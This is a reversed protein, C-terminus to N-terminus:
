SLVCTPACVMMFTEAPIRYHVRSSGTGIMPLSVLRLWNTQPHLDLRELIGAMAAATRQVLKFDTM